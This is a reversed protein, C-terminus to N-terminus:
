IEKHEQTEDRLDQPTQGHPSGSKLALIHSPPFWNRNRKAPREDLADWIEGVNDPWEITAMHGCEVCHYVGQANTLQMASGCDMPCDAIWRGFNVYARAQNTLLTM